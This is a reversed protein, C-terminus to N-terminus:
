SAMNYGYTLHATGEVVLVLLLLGIWSLICPSDLCCSCMLM